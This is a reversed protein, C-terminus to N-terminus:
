KTKRTSNFDYGFNLETKAEDQANFDTKVSLIFKLKSAEIHPSWFAVMGDYVVGDYLYGERLTAMNILSGRKPSKGLIKGVPVGVGFYGPRAEDLVGRTMTSIPAKAEALATAYDPGLVYYQNGKDDVLSFYPPNIWIKKGSKNSIKVYFVIQEPFYPNLGAYNGFIKKNDFFKNLYENSAYRVSVSVGEQEQEQSAPELSWVSSKAIEHEEEVPGAAQRELLLGSKHRGCGSLMALALCLGLTMLVSRRLRPTAM